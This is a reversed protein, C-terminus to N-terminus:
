PGNQLMVMDVYSEHVRNYNMFYVTRLVAAICQVYGDCNKPM